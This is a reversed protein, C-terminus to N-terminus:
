KHCYTMFNRLHVITLSLRHQFHAKACLQKSLALRITCFEKSGDSKLSFDFNLYAAAVSVENTASTLAATIKSVSM